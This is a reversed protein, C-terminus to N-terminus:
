NGMYAFRGETRLLSAIEEMKSPQLLSEKNKVLRVYDNYNPEISTGTASSVIITNGQPMFKMMYYKVINSIEPFIHYKESNTISSSVGYLQVKINNENCQRILNHHIYEGQIQLTNIGYKQKLELIKNINDINEVGRNRVLDPKKVTNDLDGLVTDFYGCNLQSISEEINNGLFTIWLEERPIDKICDRIAEFYLTVTTNLLMAYRSKIDIHRYGIALATRLNKKLTELTWGQATGFSLEPMTKETITSGALQKKALIYKNKYKVYKNFYNNDM